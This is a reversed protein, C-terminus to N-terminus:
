ELAADGAGGGGPVCVKRNKSGGGSSRCIFESTAYAQCYATAELVAADAGADPAVHLDVAECSLFCMMQGTSEFPSCVQKFGTLCEGPVACCDADSQCLHTCYGGTVRDLCMVKGLLTGGDLSPYCDAATKCSQGTQEPGRGDGIAADGSSGSAGGGPGGGGPTSSDSGCGIPHAAALLLFSSAILPSRFSAM